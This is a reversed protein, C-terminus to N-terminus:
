ATLVFRGAGGERALEHAEVAGVGSLPFCRDVHIHLTGSQALAAITYRANNRIKISEDNGTEGGLAQFGEQRARSLNVITAIRHRDTVLALSTDIVEDDGVTDIVAVIDDLASSRVREALGPGRLVATAGWVSLLSVNKESVTGIVKAGFITALQAALRGVAGAAGHVLITEGPRVSTAALCHFATTGTLMMSGAQAWSLRAPKPIISSSPVVIRSAYAGNVRYSIVEDGERIPGLPGIADTGVATVVGAAELGLAIPFDNLRDRMRAYDTTAYLKIDKPNVAAARVDVAVEGRGLSREDSPVERLMDTPSGHGVAVIKM